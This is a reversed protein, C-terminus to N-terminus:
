DRRLVAAFFGDTGSRHPWLMLDGSPQFARWSEPLQVRTDLVEAALVRRFSPHKALFGDVVAANERDFLSCTAYVLTGGPKVLLSAAHLIEAQQGALSAIRDAHMRWKLDPNRRLTGIGSCPADVLVVDAKAALRKVREDSFGSIACPWVNSLGSRALRPKLKALRSVSVDLAYLRGTNKLASGLALTKGGAGACFDVVFQGRKPAALKAVLQSGIDQVEVWGQEFAKARQLAPKGQVRLAEAFFPYPEAAIGDQALADIAQQPTALLTNVRLDMGAPQNLAVACALVEEAPLSQALEDAIWQPMSHRVLPDVTAVALAQVHALWQEEDPTIERAISATGFNELAALLAFRRHLSGHGASSLHAYWTRHRLVAWACQAFFGRDRSGLEAHARFFQSIVLDAPQKLELVANLLTVLQDFRSGQASPRSKSTPKGQPTRIPSASSRSTRRM